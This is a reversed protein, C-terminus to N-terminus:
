AVGEKYDTIADELSGYMEDAMARIEKSPLQKLKKKEMVKDAALMNILIQINEHEKEDDYIAKRTEYTDKLINPHMLNVRAENFGDNILFQKMKEDENNEEVDDEDINLIYNAILTDEDWDAMETITFGKMLLLEYMEVEDVDPYKEETIGATEDANDDLKETWYTHALDMMDMDVLEPRKYNKYVLFQIMEWRNPEEEDKEVDRNKMLKYNKEVEAITAGTLVATTFGNDLLYKRMESYTPEDEDDALGGFLGENLENLGRRSQVNGQNKNWPWPNHVTQQLRGRGRLVNTKLILSTDIEFKCSEWIEMMEKAFAEAEDGVFGDKLTYSPRNKAKAPRPPQPRTTGFIADIPGPGLPEYKVEPEPPVGRVITLTRGKEYLREGGEKGNFLRYETHVIEAYYEKHQIISAFNPADVGTNLPFNVGPHDINERLDTGSFRNIGSPHAHVSNMGHFQWESIGLECLKTFMDTKEFEQFKSIALEMAANNAEGVEGLNFEVAAGSVEQHYNFLVLPIAIDLRQGEAQVRGVINIYHHQYEVSYAGTMGSLKQFDEITKVDHFLVGFNNRNSADRIKAVNTGTFKTVGNHIITAM